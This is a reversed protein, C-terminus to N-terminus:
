IDTRDWRLTDRFIGSSGFSEKFRALGFNPEMNVTFIGFDLYRFGRAISDEIVQRFVLNVARYEQFEEDHSIYFALTVQPNVDFMVIGAIMQTELFAAYLRIKEPYLAALRELEELTHTPAVNHRIKLNKRLIGYFEDYKESLSVTVGSKESKRCARLVSSKFKQLNEGITDELYLVSSIERKVYSFGNRFLAFELYNSLRRFYIDPTLTMIIRGIGQQGAYKKLADVAHFARDISMDVNQILGGYSAGRHSHLIKVGDEEYVVAPLIMQLREDEFFLLSNDQFRGEPHYSLFRREAFLHGNNAQRNFDDWLEEDDATFKRIEM